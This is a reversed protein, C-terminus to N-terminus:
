IMENIIKNLMSDATTLAKAAANYAHQFKILYTLEEDLSVGSLEQRKGDLQTILDESYSRERGFRQSEVAANTIIENYLDNFNAKGDNFFNKHKVQAILIANSGDGDGNYTRLRDTPNEITGQAAAILNLNNRIGSEVAFNKAANKFPDSPNDTALPVFFNRGTKGDLGFGQRHVYNVETALNYTMMNLKNLINEINNDRVELLGQLKGSTVIPRLDLNAVGKGRILLTVGDIVGSVENSSSTYERGAFNFKADRAEKETQFNIVKVLNSTGDAAAVIKNDAGTLASTLVLQGAENITSNINLGAENIMNNLDTMSTNEADLHFTRGNLEFSGSTIGFTSLAADLPHFTLFSHMSHAQATQSVNITINRNEGSHTLIASAVEPKDSFEQYRAEGALTTEKMGDKNVLHLENVKSHEILLHNGNRVTLFGRSNFSHDVNILKALEELAHQRKDRLDNAINNGVESREIQLNLDAIQHALNNVQKLATDIQNEISGQFTHDPTGQLRRLRTDVDQVASVLTVAQEYLNRRLELRAPSISLEQWAAWFKDLQDRITATGPENLIAEVQKMLDDAAARQELTSIENTIKEDIFANRLHQIKTIDVGTGVNQSTVPANLYPILHPNTASLVARQRAYGETNANAINHSTVDMAKRQTLIARKGLEIGFFTSM